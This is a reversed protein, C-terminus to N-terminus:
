DRDKPKPPRADKRREMLKRTFEREVQPLEFLQKKTLIKRFSDLYKKDIEALKVGFSYQMEICEDIEADTATGKKIKKAVSRELKRFKNEAETKEADKADYIEFFDEIQDEELDLEDILFGHKFEKMKRLWEEKDRKNDGRREQASVPLCIGVLAILIFIKSLYKM